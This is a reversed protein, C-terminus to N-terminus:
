LKFSTSARRRLTVDIEGAVARILNPIGSMKDFMIGSAAAELEKTEAETLRWGSAGASDAVHEPKKAGPIAVVNPKSILWNLATQAPTKEHAGAITSLTNRLSNMRSLNRSSFRPDAAQVLSTPNSQSTYRGTLLSSALPSYAIITINSSQTYPLLEAEIERDIINYKVQNSAPELPSLAEITAKMKQLNFNSVGVTRVKGLRVLKKMANMTSRIPVAPNPWHIQYLDIVDVNLRRASRDAARMLRGPTINWPWVKTAIVVEERHGKIAEGILHESRGRGYIEATDIFNIGFQLAEQFAALVDARGYQRGWGWERAGWQWTGLGIASVKIGSKGLEKFEM